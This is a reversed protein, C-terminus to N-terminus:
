PKSPTPEILYVRAGPRAAVLRLQSDAPFAVSEGDLLFLYRTSLSAAIAAAESAAPTTFFRRVVERRQAVAEAPAFQPLYPFLDTL